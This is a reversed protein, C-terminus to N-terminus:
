GWAQLTSRGIAPLTPSGAAGGASTTNDLFNTYVVGATAGSTTLASGFNITGDPVIFSLNLEVMVGTALSSLIFLNANFDSAGNTSLCHWFAANTEKPPKSRIKAPTASSGQSLYEISKGIFGSYSITITNLESGSGGAAIALMNISNIRFSNILGVGTTTGSAAWLLNFVDRPFIIVSGLAANARFVFTMNLTSQTQVQTGLTFLSKRVPDKGTRRKSKGRSRNM